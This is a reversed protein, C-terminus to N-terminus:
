SCIMKEIMTNGISNYIHGFQAWIRFLYSIFKEYFEIAKAKRGKKEYLEALNYYNKPRILRGDRNEPNPDTM